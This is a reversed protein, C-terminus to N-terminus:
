FSESLKQCLFNVKFTLFWSKEIAVQWVYTSRGFFFKKHFLAIKWEILSSGNQIRFNSFFRSHYRNRIYCIPRSLQWLNWCFFPWSQLCLQLATSHSSDNTSSKTQIGSRSDSHLNDADYYRIADECKWYENCPCHFTMTCENGVEHASFILIPCTFVM